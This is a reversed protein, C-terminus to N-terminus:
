GSWGDDMTWKEIDGDLFQARSAKCLMCWWGAMSEKGLSMVQFALNSTLYIDILHTNESWTQKFKCELKGDGNMEIHLNWMAVIELGQTLQTLITSKILKCTDKCCICVSLESDIQKNSNLNVSVSAGVPLSHRRPRESLLKSTNLMPLHSPNATSIASYISAFRMTFIRKWGSLSSQRRKEM